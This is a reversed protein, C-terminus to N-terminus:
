PLKDPDVPISANSLERALTKRWKGDEDVVIYRLGNYNSPLELDTTGDSKLLATVNQRGIRGVFYGWELIVNQRARPRRPKKVKAEGWDDPTLLIVAFSVNSHKEIAEAFTDGEGPTDGLVTPRLGLNTLTLVVDDRLPKDHGHAVFVRHPLTRRILDVLKQPGDSKRIVLADRKAGENKLNLARIASDMDLHESFIIVPVDRRIAKAVDFGSSDTAPPPALSIDIVALDFPENDHILQKAERGTNYPLVEYGAEQLAGGYIECTEPDDDVLLIRYNAM